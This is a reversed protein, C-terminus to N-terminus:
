NLVITCNIEFDTEPEYLPDNDVRLACSIPLKTMLSARLLALTCGSSTVSTMM